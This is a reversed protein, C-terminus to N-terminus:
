QEGQQAREEANWTGSGRDRRCGRPAAKCVPRLLLLRPSTSGGCRSAPPSATSPLLGRERVPDLVRLSRTCASAKTGAVIGM